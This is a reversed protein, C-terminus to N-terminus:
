KQEYIEALKRTLAEGRLDTAVVTGDPGYLITAPIARINYRAAAESQWYKLDSMQPWTIGLSEVGKQWAEQTRDLSIGVVEFGKAHYKKYAAKVTPMEQRCPGCWSAWFDVLALKGDILDSLRGDVGVIDSYHNGVSTQEMARLQGLKRQVTKSGQVAPSAAAVLSDLTTYTLEGIQVIEEMAIVGLINDRNSNYLRWDIDLLRATGIADLSDLVREAEARDEANPANYYLPMYVNMQDMIDSINHEEDYAQLRDNLPTGGIGSDDIAITGPELIFRVNLPADAMAVLANVPQDVTGKFTFKGGSMTTSDLPEQAESGLDFLYVTKGDMESGAVTGNVTFQNKGGCASFVVMIAAACLIESIKKM